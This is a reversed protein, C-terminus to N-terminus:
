SNKIRYCSLVAGSAFTRSEVLALDRRKGNRAFLPTGAGLVVPQQILRIEDIVGHELAAQAASAGAFLAITRRAEDKLRAIDDIRIAHSNAWGTRETGHTLVYKPLANM